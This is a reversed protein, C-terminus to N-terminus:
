LTWAIFILGILRQCSTLLHENILLNPLEELPTPLSNIHVVKKQSQTLRTTDPQITSDFNSKESSLLFWEVSVLSPLLTLSQVVLSLSHVTTLFLFFFSFSLLVDGFYEWCSRVLVESNCMLYKAYCRFEFEIVLCLGNSIM